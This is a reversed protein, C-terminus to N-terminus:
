PHTTLGLLEGSTLTRQPRPTAPTRTRQNLKSRREPLPPSAGLLQALWRTPIGTLQLGASAEFRLIAARTQSGYIGDIEARYHGLGALQRQLTALSSPSALISATAVTGIVDAIASASVGTNAITRSDTHRAARSTSRVPPRSQVYTGVNIGVVVIGQSTKMLLPSGSSAGATDCDHLILQDHNTFERRIQQRTLGDYEGAIGCPTSYALSWHEYDRHYSIQFVERRTQRRQAERIQELQAGSALPLERGKCASNELRMLAWDNAADIPPRVSLDITGAVINQMGVGRSAGLIQSQRKPTTDRLEFWFESLPQRQGDTRRFLCHAATAAVNPAVCFATCLTRASSNYLLGISKTIRSYKAP